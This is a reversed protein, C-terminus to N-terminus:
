QKILLAFNLRAFSELLEDFKSINTDSYYYMNLYRTKVIAMIDLHLLYM